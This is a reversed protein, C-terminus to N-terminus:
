IRQDLPTPFLFRVVSLSSLSSQKKNYAGLSPFLKGPSNQVLPMREYPNPNININSSHGLFELSPFQSNSVMWAPLAESHEASACVSDRRSVGSAPNGCLRSYQSTLHSHMNSAKHKQSRSTAKTYFFYINSYMKAERHGGSILHYLLVQTWALRQIHVCVSSGGIRASTMSSTVDHEKLLGRNWCSFM